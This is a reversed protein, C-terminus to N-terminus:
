ATCLTEIIEPLNEPQLRPHAAQGHQSRSVAVPAHPCMDLCHRPVIDFAPKGAKLQSDRLELLRELNPIAGQLQCQGVCIGFLTEATISPVLNPDLAMAAWAHARAKGQQRAVEDIAEPSLRGDPAKGAAEILPPVLEELEHRPIPDHTNAIPPGMNPLLPSM